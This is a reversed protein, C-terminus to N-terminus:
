PWQECTKRYEENPFYLSWETYTFNRSARECVIEIWKDPSLDFLLLRGSDFIVLDNNETFVVDDINIYGFQYRILTQYNATDWLIIGQREDNSALLTGDPNFSLSWVDGIAGDQPKLSQSIQRGNKWDWFIINADGGVVGNGGSGSVLYKGDPSFTLARITGNQGTLIVDYVLKQTKVEWVLIKPECYKQPDETNCSGAAIYQGDPSFIVHNKWQGDAVSIPNGFGDGRFVDLLIIKDIVRISLLSGDPSASLNELGIVPVTAILQFPSTRWIYTKDNNITCGVFGGEPTFFIEFQNPTCGSLFGLQRNQAADWLMIKEGQNVVLYNMMMNKLLITSNPPASSPLSNTIPNQGDLNWLITEGKDCVPFNYIANVHCGGSILKKGDPTYEISFVFGSHGILEQETEEFNELNLFTITEGGLALTKGDPSFSLSHVNTKQFSKLTILNNSIDWVDVGREGSVALSTSEANISIDFARGVTGDVQLKLELSQADFFLVKPNCETLAANGYDCETYVAIFWKGDPSFTIHVGVIDMSLPLFDLYKITDVDWFNIGRYNDSAALVKGDPSFAIREIRPADSYLIAIQSTTVIDWLLISNNQAAALIKGDPSFAMSSILGNKNIAPVSSIPQRSETDWLMILESDGGTAIMKGNPSIAMSAGSYSSGQQGYFGLLEVPTQSSSLLMKRTQFIDTKRYAEVSMLMSLQLENQRLNQAQVALEGARAITAQKEAELANVEAQARATEAAQAIEINGQAQNQFVVSAVIAAILVLSVASILIARTRQQRRRGAKVFEQALQGLALKQKQVQEWINTLRGGSYLYSADRKNEEWEKAASAIENQLTIADRNENILKKLWPWADILKEHTITYRDSGEETTVLRADALKQVVAKVDDSKSNVPILENFLATRKTDQTGRGIEILNSFISQALKTEHESFQALAADAHRQLAENIGKNEFYGNLTLAIMGGKAQEKDFLDKLAFSMLPLAGPEGKMDNIIQAILEPEIKLGVRLAPQAIASVLEEPQMSGIQIFQRSLTANLEPYVACNPVFDSRMAFLLIVRGNVADAAHTLLNLFTMREEEHNVQTFIEEFQDIFLVLRQNKSDGLASEACELLAGPNNRNQRFFNGLEPSKLRSFSLALSEIPDRGPKMTAYLWRESSKINGRKLAHILGARVLSSKGSGSPGTIFVTRSAEVRRVLEDVLKERGFFLEADAEEFYDLGKYPCTGDFAKAQFTSSIQTLLTSVEESTFGTNGITLNGQVNGGVSISGVAVSNKEANVGSM